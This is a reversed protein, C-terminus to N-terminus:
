VAGAGEPLTFPVGSGSNNLSFGVVAELTPPVTNTKAHIDKFDARLYFQVPM